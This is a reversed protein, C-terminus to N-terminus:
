SARGRRPTRLRSAPTDSWSTARTGRRRRQHGGRALLSRLISVIDM